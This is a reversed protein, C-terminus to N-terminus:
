GDIPTVSGDENVFGIIGDKIVPGYQVDIHCYPLAMLDNIAKDLHNQAVAINLSAETLHDMAELCDPDYKYSLDVGRQKAKLYEAAIPQVKSQIEKLAINTEGCLHHLNMREDADMFTGDPLRREPERM